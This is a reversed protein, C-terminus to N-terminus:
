SDLAFRIYATVAVAATAVRLVTDGLSVPTFGNGLAEQVEAPTFDGEPGIVVIINKPKTKSLVEKILNRKGALHPILKLDYQQSDQIVKKFDTVADIVPVESRQCQRAASQAIKQWRKLRAEGKVDDLKVVVRDTRMPIIRKVGLQTLNDIVDDLHSGKPIACAITVAVGKGGKTKLPTVKFVAQKNNISTIVGSFEKGAGDFVVIADGTKLRLVDRLHHLQAADTLAAKDSQVQEVLFRHM